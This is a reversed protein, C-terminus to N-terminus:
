RTDRSRSSPRGAGRARRAAPRHRARRRATRVRAHRDRPERRRRQAHHERRQALRLHRHRAPQRAAGRRRRPAAGLVAARHPHRAATRERLTELLERASEIFANEMRSTTTEVQEGFSRLVVATVAPAGIPYAETTMTGGGPLVRRAGMVPQRGGRSAYAEPEDDRGLVLGARSEAIPDAATSPRADALVALDGARNVVALSADGYWLDAILQLNSAVNELHDIVDKSLGLTPTTRPM